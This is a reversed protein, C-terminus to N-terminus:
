LYPMPCYSILGEGEAFVSRWWLRVREFGSAPRKKPLRCRAPYTPAPLLPRRCISQMAPAIAGTGFGRWYRLAILGTRTCLPRYGGAAGNRQPPDARWRCACNTTYFDWTGLYAPISRKAAHHRPSCNKWKVCWPNMPMRTCMAETQM